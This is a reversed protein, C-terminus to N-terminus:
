PNRFTGSVTLAWWRNFSGMWTKLTARSNIIGEWPIEWHLRLAYRRLNCTSFVQHLRAIFLLNERRWLPTFLEGRVRISQELRIILYESSRHLFGQRINSLSNPLKIWKMSKLPCPLRLMLRHGGFTTVILSDTKKALKLGKMKRNSPFDERNETLM